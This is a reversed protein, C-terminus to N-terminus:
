LGMLAERLEKDIPDEENEPIVVTEVGPEPPKEESAPEQPSEAKKIYESLASESIRIIRPSIKIFKLQGSDM